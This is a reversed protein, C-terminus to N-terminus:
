SYRVRKDAPSPTHLLIWVLTILIYYFDLIFYVDTCIYRVQYHINMNPALFILRIVGGSLGMCGSAREARCGTEQNFIM